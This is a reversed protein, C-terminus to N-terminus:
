IAEGKLLTLTTWYSSKIATASWRYDDTSATTALSQYAEESKSKYVSVLGDYAVTVLNIPLLYTLVLRSWRFPTVFPATLLQGITTGVLIQLYQLITPQLIEVIMAPQGQRAIAALIGAQEEQDFHHFANFLTVLGRLNYEDLQMVDLHTADDQPYLDTMTVTSIDAKSAIYTAPMGSGSCLDTITDDGQTRLLATAIPVLPRYLRLAVVLWGIYEM